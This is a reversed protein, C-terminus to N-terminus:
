AARDPRVDGMGIAFGMSYRANVECRALFRRAGGRDRWAFADVGFPGAYGAEVLARGADEAARVLARAEGAELEAPRARRSGRWAGREDCDQATPEGLVIAGARDTVGHLGFDALRAVLPEIALTSAARLSAAIWARGADDVGGPPFVRRGRGAFGHERKALWASGEPPADGLTAIAEDVSAVLRAGPLGGGLAASFARGNVRRLLAIPPADLALGVSAFARAARPTPCWARAVFRAPDLRAGALAIPTVGEGLAGGEVAAGGEVLVVDGPAFLAAIAPLLRATRALVAERAAYPGRAALEDDAELNPLWAIAAGERRAGTV